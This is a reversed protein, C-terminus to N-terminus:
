HYLSSKSGNLKSGQLKRRFIQSDMPVGDGLTLTAKPTQLNMGECKECERSCTIHSEPKGRPRCGQLGKAKTAFGLSLNRCNYENAFQHKIELSLNKQFSHHCKYGLITDLM